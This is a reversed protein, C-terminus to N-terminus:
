LKKVHARSWWFDTAYVHVYMYMIYDNLFKFFINSCLNIM